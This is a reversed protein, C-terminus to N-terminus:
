NAAPQQGLENKRTQIFNLINELRVRWSHHKLVWERGVKALEEREADNKLLRDIETKLMDFDLWTKIVNKNFDQNIGYYYQSITACGCGMARWIRDSTYGRRNFQNQTIAIKATNYIAIEDNKEAIRSHGGWGMGYVAFRNGYENRLFDVMEVRQQALPFEDKLSSTTYNGGIFVIEPFPFVKKEDGIKYSTILEPQPSYVDYDAASNSWMVNNFGARKLEDVTEMDGVVVLGLHPALDKIWGIDQRVDFSFLVTFTKEPLSHLLDADLNGGSQVHLFLLDPEEMHAKAILREWMGIIGENAKVSQWNFVSVEEFLEKM